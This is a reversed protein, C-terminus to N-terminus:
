KDHTDALSFERWKRRIQISVKESITNQNESNISHSLVIFCLYLYEGILVRPITVWKLLIFQLYPNYSYVFPEVSGFTSLIVECRITHGNGNNWQDASYNSIDTPRGSRFSHICLWFLVYGWFNVTLSLSQCRFKILPRWKSDMYNKLLLSM